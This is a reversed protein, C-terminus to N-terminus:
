KKDNNLLFCRISDAKTNNNNHLYEFYQEAQGFKTDVNSKLSSCSTGVVALIIIILKKM